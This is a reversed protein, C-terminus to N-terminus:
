DVEIGLEGKEKDVTLTVAEDEAFKKSVFSHHNGNIKIESNQLNLSILMEKFELSDSIEGTHIGIDINLSKSFNPLFSPFSKEFGLLKNGIALGPPGQKSKEATKLDKLKLTQSIM